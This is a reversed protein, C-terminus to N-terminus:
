PKGGTGQQPTQSPRQGQGGSSGATITTPKDPKQDSLCHVFHAWSDASSFGGCSSACDFVVCYSESLDASGIRALHASEHIMTRIRQEASDRFFAPCLIIPPRLGRVYAARPGCDPDGAGAIKVDVGSTLFGVMNGIIDGIQEMNPNDWDFMLRALSRARLATESAQDIGGPPGSPVVGRVRFMAIQCRIAAARRADDIIRQQAATPATPAAPTSAGGGGASQRQIGNKGGGAAVSSFGQSIVTSAARDADAELHAESSSPGANQSQQVVHALEHAILKRGQAGQPRYADAGFSIHNGVTYALANVAQASEAARSDAHIRVKGFEHRFRPEFFARTEADLPQGPSDLVERVSAPLGDHAAQDATRSLRRVRCEECEGTHSGGCACKRQLFGNTQRLRAGSRM